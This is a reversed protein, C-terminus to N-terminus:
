SFGGGLTEAALQWPLDPDAERAIQRGVERPDVPVLAAADRRSSDTAPLANAALRYGVLRRGTTFGLGRYLAAAPENQEIVELVMKGLGAARCRKIAEEMMGRGVGHRRADSVVGMGAIRCQWGRVAVCVIGVPRDDLLAVWSLALDITDYRVRAALGEPTEVIRVFYGEFGRTFLDALTALDFEYAPRLELTM